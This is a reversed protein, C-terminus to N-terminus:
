ILFAGFFIIFLDISLLKFVCAIAIASHLVFHLVFHLLALVNPHPVTSYSTSSILKESTSYFLPWRFLKEFNVSLCLFCEDPPTRDSSTRLFGAFDVSFRRHWLKKKLLTAPQFGLFTLILWQLHETFSPTNKFLRAPTESCGNMSGRCFLHEQIFNVLFFKHQVRKLLTATTLVLLKTLSPELM